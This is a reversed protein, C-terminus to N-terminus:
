RLLFHLQQRLDLFWRLKEPCQYDPYTWPFPRWQKQQYYLVLDAYLSESLAVRHYFPKTTALIIQDLALFGPDLNITRSHGSSQAYQRELELTREKLAVLHQRSSPHASLLYLERRLLQHDAADVPLMEKAYYTFLPNYSPVLHHLSFTNSSLDQGPTLWQRLEDIIPSVSVLDSRYLVSVFYFVPTAVLRQDIM